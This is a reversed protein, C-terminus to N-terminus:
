ANNDGLEVRLKKNASIRKGTGAIELMYAGNKLIVLTYFRNVRTNAPILHAPKMMYEKM